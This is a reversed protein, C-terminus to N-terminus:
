FDDEDVPGVRFLRDGFGLDRWLRCVQLRDDFIAAVNYCPEVHKEFLEKKVEYDPRRDGQGRMFLEFTIDSFYQMLWDQTDDFCKSSRGSLFIIKAGMALARSRVTGIIFNRPLDNKVKDEDFPDRDGMDAITGDIDCIIVYPKTLDTTRYVPRKKGRIYNDFMRRIVREGVPIARQADRSLCTNLPVDTMDIIEFDAKYIAALERLKKEHKPALNTDDVIVDKHRYLNNCILSNRAELIVNSELDSSWVGGLLMPRLEDKNIRVVNGKGDQVMKLARTTKGCGPLGKMMYLKAM